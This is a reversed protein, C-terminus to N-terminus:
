IQKDARGSERKREKERARKDKQKQTKRTIM